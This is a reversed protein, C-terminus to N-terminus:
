SRAPNVRRRPRRVAGISAPSLSSGFADIFLSCPGGSLPLTGALVDVRYTMQHGSLEPEYLVVAVDALPDAIDPLFSLVANPANTAFSQEGEGWLDVFHNSPMHGAERRPRNAFYITADALGHLTIKGDHASFAAGNQVFLADIRELEQRDIDGV